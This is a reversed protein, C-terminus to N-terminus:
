RPRASAPRGVPEGALRPPTMKTHILALSWSGGDDAHATFHRDM